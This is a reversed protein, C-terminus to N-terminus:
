DAVLEITIGRIKSVAYEVQGGGPYSIVLLRNAEWSLGIQSAEKQLNTLTHVVDGQKTGDVQSSSLAVYTRTAGAAGVDIQYLTAKASSDPSTATKLETKGGWGSFFWGVALYAGATLISFLGVMALMNRSYRYLRGAM